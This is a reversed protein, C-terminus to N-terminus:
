LTNVFKAFIHSESKQTHEDLDNVLVHALKNWAQSAITKTYDPSGVSQKLIFRSASPDYPINGLHNIKLKLFNLATEKIRYAIADGERTSRTMNVVLECEKIGYQSFVKALAYADTMAHPESTTVIVRKHAMLNFHIVNDGIGAGTDVIYIDFQEKLTDIHNLFSQKEVKSLQSLSTIGSGSPIIKIGAPGELMIQNLTITGDLVDRINYRATLGLVIDVNSMGLDGDIILVKNGMKQAALALNIVSLTKGVGGKGSGVSIIAPCKKSPLFDKYNITHTELSHSDLNTRKLLSSPSSPSSSSM